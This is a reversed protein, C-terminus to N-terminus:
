IHIAPEIIWSKLLVKFLASGYPGRRYRESSYGLTKCHLSPTELLKKNHGVFTMKFVLFVTISPLFKTNSSM